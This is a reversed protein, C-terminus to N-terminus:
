RKEELRDVKGEIRGLRESTEHFRREADERMFKVAQHTDRALRNTEAIQSGHAELISTGKNVGWTLMGIAATAAVPMVYRAIIKAWVNEALDHIAPPM